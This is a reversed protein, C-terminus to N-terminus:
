TIMGDSPNATEFSVVGEQAEPEKTELFAIIIADDIHEALKHMGQKAALSRFRRLANFAILPM